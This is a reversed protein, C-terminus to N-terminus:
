VIRIIMVISLSSCENDNRDDAIQVSVCVRQVTQTNNKLM